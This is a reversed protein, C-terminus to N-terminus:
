PQIEEAVGDIDAQPRLPSTVRRIYSFGDEEDAGGGCARMLWAGPEAPGLM